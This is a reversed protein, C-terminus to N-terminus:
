MGACYGGEAVGFFYPIDDNSFPPMIQEIDPNIALEMYLDESTYGLSKYACVTAVASLCQADSPCYVGVTDLTRLAAEDLMQPTLEAETARPTATASTTSTNVSEVVPSAEVTSPSSTVTSENPGVADACAAAVFTLAVLGAALIARDKNPHNKM